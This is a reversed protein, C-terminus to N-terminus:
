KLELLRFELELCEGRKLEMWRQFLEDRRARIDILERESLEFDFEQAHSEAYQAIYRNFEM